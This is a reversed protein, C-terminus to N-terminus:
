HLEGGAAVNITEGTINDARCLFVEPACELVRVGHLEYSRTAPM